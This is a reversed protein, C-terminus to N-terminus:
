DKRKLVIFVHMKVPAFVAFGFGLGFVAMALFTIWISNSIYLLVNGLMLIISGIINNCTVDLKQNM